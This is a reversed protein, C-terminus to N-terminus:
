RIMKFEHNRYNSLVVSRRSEAPQQNSHQAEAMFQELNKQFKNHMFMKLLFLIEKLNMKQSKM